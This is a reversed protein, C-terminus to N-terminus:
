LKIHSSVKMVNVAVRSFMNIHFGWNPNRSVQFMLVTWSLLVAITTLFRHWTETSAFITLVAALLYSSWKLWSELETFYYKPLRYVSLM